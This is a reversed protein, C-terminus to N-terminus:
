TTVIKQMHCKPSGASPWLTHQQYVNSQLMPYFCTGHTPGPTLAMSLWLALVSASARRRPGHLMAGSSCVPRLCASSYTLERRARLDKTPSRSRPLNRLPQGPLRKYVHEIRLRLAQRLSGPPSARQGTSSVDFPKVCSVLLDCNHAAVSSLKRWPDVALWLGPPRLWIDSRGFCVIGYAKAKSVPRPRRHLFGQGKFQSEFPKTM